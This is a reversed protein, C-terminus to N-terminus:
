SIRPHYLGAWGKGDYDSDGNVLIREVENEAGGYLLRGIHLQGDHKAGHKWLYEESAGTMDIRSRGSPVWFILAAQREYEEQFSLIQELLDHEIWKEADSTDLLDLTGEMGSVVLADGGNSPLEDPWNSSISFFQRLSVVEAPESVKVLLEPSWLLSCGSRMWGSDCRTRVM